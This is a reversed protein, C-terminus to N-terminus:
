PQILRLARRYFRILQPLLLLPGAYKEAQSNLNM